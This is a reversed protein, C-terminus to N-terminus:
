STTSAWCRGSWVASCCAAACCTSPMRSAARACAGPEEKRAGFRQVTAGAAARWCASCPRRAANVVLRGSAPVTRVLHHFQTEIAALDAFIDAHDFELNNLIATRPRYHV